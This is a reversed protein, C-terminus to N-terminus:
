FSLSLSFFSFGFFWFRFVLFWFGFVLLGGRALGSASHEVESSPSPRALSLRLSSRCAEEWVFCWTCPPSWKSTTTPSPPAATKWSSAPPLSWVSNTRLFPRRIKSRRSWTTSPTPPSWGTHHNQFNKKFSSCCNCCCDCSVNSETCRSSHSPCKYKKWM